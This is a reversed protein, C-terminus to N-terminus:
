IIGSLHFFALQLQVAIYPTQAFIYLLHHFLRLFVGALQDFIVIIKLKECRIIFMKCQKLPLKTNYDDQIFPHM